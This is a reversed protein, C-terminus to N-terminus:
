EECLLAKEVQDIITHAAKRISDLRTTLSKEDQGYMQLYAVSFPNTIGFHRAVIYAVSEAELEREQKSLQSKGHELMGHTWEHIFTNVKSTADMSAKVVILTGENYGQVQDPRSEEECTFGQATAVDVLVRYFQVAQGDDSLPKWFADLPPQEASQDIQYDAFVPVLVFYTYAEDPVEKNGRKVMKGEEAKHFAPAWIWIAREGKAVNYTKGHRKTGIAQWAAFSAVHSAQVDRRRAAAKIIQQNAYSYHHFQAAFNLFEVLLTSRGAQLEKLLAKTAEEITKKADARRVEKQEESTNTSSHKM